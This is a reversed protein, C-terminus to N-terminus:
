GTIARLWILSEPYVILGAAALAVGYPIGSQPNHLRAIWEQQLLSAPLPLKRMALLAMALFGGIISTLVGYNAIVDWGLWIATAAALKADGGGLIRFSFLVFTLLFIALGCSLHLLVDMPSAGVLLAIPIFGLALAISVRNSIMMTATDSLAAFVMLVPFFIMVAADTM